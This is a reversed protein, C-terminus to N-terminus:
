EQKMFRSLDIIAYEESNENGKLGVMSVLVGDITFGWLIDKDNLKALLTKNPTKNHQKELLDLHDQLTLKTIKIKKENDMVLDYNSRENKTFIKTKSDTTDLTSEDSLIRTGSFKLKELNEDYTKSHSLVELLSEKKPRCSFICEYKYDINQKNKPLGLKINPPIDTICAILHSNLNRNRLEIELDYFNKDHHLNIWATCSVIFMTLHLHRDAEMINNWCISEATEDITPEIYEITSLM